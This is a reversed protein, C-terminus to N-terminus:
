LETSGDGDHAYHRLLGYANDAASYCATIPDDFYAINFDPIEEIIEMVRKMAARAYCLDCDPDGTVLVGDRLAVPIPTDTTM